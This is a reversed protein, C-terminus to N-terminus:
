QLGKRLAQNWFECEMRTATAFIDILQEIKDHSLKVAHSELIKRFAEAAQNFEPGSYDQVWKWYPNKEFGHVTEPNKLINNAAEGYGFLCPSLAVQLALWDERGGIDLLYRSYAYTAIGEPEAELDAVSIGFKECYSMHTKQEHAIQQIVIAAEEITKMDNSKYAAMGHCRAYHKLYQYDQRLFYMFRDMPLTGAGLQQTFPHNTYDHWLSSVKPHSIIYEFFKGPVFERTEINHMHNVPGYGAGIPFASVIAHQVYDIADGVAQVISSGSGLNSAIASSLTCGTGHTSKSHIFKAKFTTIAYGDYLVDVILEPTSSVALNTDFGLHGGKILVAKCKLLDHLKIAADKMQGLSQLKTQHNLKSLIQEAEGINPTIVTAIPLLHNVYSDITEDDVLNSGSTSVMVPDVVLFKVQYQQLKRAVTQVTEKLTLMGTKVADVGVDQFVADLAKEIFNQDAVPFIDSVGLTNQATLGTICTMGYCNHATFTKLDAEIGAGGSSDSGLSYFNIFYLITVHLQM